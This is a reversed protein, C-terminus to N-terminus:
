LSQLMILKTNMPDQVKDNVQLIETAFIRESNENMSLVRDREMLVMKNFEDKEVFNLDILDNMQKKLSKIQLLKEPYEQNKYTALVKLLNKTLHLEKVVSTLRKEYM